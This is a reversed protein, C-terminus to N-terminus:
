GALFLPATVYSQSQNVSPLPLPLRDTNKKVDFQATDVQQNLVDRKRFSKAQVSSTRDVSDITITFSM